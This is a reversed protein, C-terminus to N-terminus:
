LSQLGTVAKAAALFVSLKTETSMQPWLKRLLPPVNKGWSEYCSDMVLWDPNIIDQESSFDANNHARQRLESVITTM